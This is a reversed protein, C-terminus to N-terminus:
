ATALLAAFSGDSYATPPDGPMGRPEQAESRAVPIGLRKSAWEVQRENEMSELSCTSYLVAAGPALLLRHDEVISKQLRVVSDLRERNFRYKAEPRRPLVGTNSCPVDLALLDVKGVVRRLGEPTTVKVRPHGEFALALSRLRNGDVDTAVVEADPFLEAWQRTKTGRGACADLIVKPRLGQAVRVPHASGPDQVRAAPFAALLAILGAHDGQWVFFGPQQHPVLDAAHASGPALAGPPVTVITPADVLGHVARQLCRDRGAVNMWHLLLDEGHSTQEALRAVPDGSFVERTLQLARGDALPLVDRRNAWARPAADPGSVIAGRLAVMKRLVANVFGAAGRRGKRKTWEVTDDVVAHDAQNGFLLIQAAGALLAAQAREDVNEWRRDICARACAALTGWRHVVAHEIARALAVDRGSLAAGDATPAAGSDVFELDPFRRAQRALRDLAAVRAPSPDNMPNAAPNAV